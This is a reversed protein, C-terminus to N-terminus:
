GYHDGMAGCHCRMMMGHVDDNIEKIVEKKYKAYAENELKDLREGKFFLLVEAFIFLVAYVGQELEGGSVTPPNPALLARFGLLMFCWFVLGIILYNFVRADFQTKMSDDHHEPSEAIYRNRATNMVRYRILIYRYFGLIAPIIWAVEWITVYQTLIDLMEYM